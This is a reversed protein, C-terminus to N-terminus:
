QRNVKHSTKLDDAIKEIELFKVTKLETRGNIYNTFSDFASQDEPNKAHAATAQVEHLVQADRLQTEITNWDAFFKVKAESSVFINDEALTRKYFTPALSTEKLYQSYAFGRWRDIFVFLRALAQNEDVDGKWGRIGDLVATECLDLFGQPAEGARYGRKQAIQDFIELVDDRFAFEQLFISPSTNIKRLECILLIDSVDNYLDKADKWRQAVLLSTLDTAGSEIVNRVVDSVQKIELELLNSQLPGRIKYPWVVFDDLIQPVCYVDSVDASSVPFTILLSKDFRRPPLSAGNTLVDINVQLESVLRSKSIDYSKSSLQIQLIPSAALTIRQESFVLVFAVCLFRM